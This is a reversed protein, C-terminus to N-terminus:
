TQSSRSRQRKLGWRLGVVGLTLLFLSSPEPVAAASVIVETVRTSWVNTGSAVEQITWFHTPDIPDITTTSYDGWRNRGAGDLVEYTSTGANLLQVNGFTTGGPGLHGSVAFSSAFTNSDSGSFGIVIDGSPNVAISGFSYAKTPSTILGSELLSNTSADIRFWRLASLGNSDVSQVSWLNTGQQVVSSSIRNDGTNIALAGGPQTAASPNNMGPIAILPNSGSQLTSTSLTATSGAFHIESRKLHSSDYASLLAQPDSANINLNVVPQPSSGVAGVGVGDFLTRNAVTPTASILDTKPIAVLNVGVAAGTITSLMNAGLYVGQSNVGLTTFDGYRNGIGSAPISFAKWGATPDSSNSVAVLFNNPKLANDLSAAFWRGSEKDFVIRPDYARKDAPTAGANIWFNNLTSRQVAVGDSKRYVAYAGNILEVFYDAGVAGDANPPFFGSNVGFTSATFNQGITFDARSSTVGTSLLVLVLALQGIRDQCTTM